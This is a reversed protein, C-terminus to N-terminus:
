RPARPCRPTSWLWLFRHVFSGGFGALAPGSMGVVMVADRSARIRGPVLRPNHREVHSRHQMAPGGGGFRGTRPSGVLRTSRWRKLDAEDMAGRAGRDCAERPGRRHGVRTGRCAGLVRGVPTAPGRPRTRAPLPPRRAARTLGRDGPAAFADLTQCGTTRFRRSTTRFGPCLETAIVGGPVVM